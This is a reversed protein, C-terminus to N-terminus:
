RGCECVPYGNDFVIRWRGSPERRWTSYFRAVVKGAASSVPGETYGLGASGTVEVIEPRWAFPPAPEDFFRKWHALIEAKGRLPRGGNVFVADDAVHAAFAEFDRDAMTRAFATEAARVAAEAESRAPPKALRSPAACAGLLSAALGAAAGALLGRRAECAM